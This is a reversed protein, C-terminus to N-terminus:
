HGSEGTGEPEPLYYVGGALILVSLFVVFLGALLVLDMGLFEVTHIHFGEVALVVATGAVALVVPISFVFWDNDM